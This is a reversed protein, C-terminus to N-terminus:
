FKNLLVQYTFLFRNFDNGYETIISNSYGAKISHRKLFPVMITVGIKSNRQLDILEDEGITQKGGTFFNADLSMWFGPKFRRVINVEGKFVPKQQRKGMLYENDVTFFWAGLEFEIMWKRWLPILSGLEFIFTWRNSGMNILDNRSYKGTPFIIKISTGIIPRPNDRLEQFEKPSMSRAGLLNIALTVGLDNFGHLYKMAPDKILLGKTTGWSYPLEFLINTTRDFLSFNYMCALFGTSIKSDVNFMPITPDMLIDGYSYSYGIVGVTTGKPSPWFKRPSLDQAHCFIFNLYLFFILLKSKKM